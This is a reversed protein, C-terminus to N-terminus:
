STRSVEGAPASMVTLRSPRSGRPQYVPMTRSGPSIEAKGPPSTENGGTSPLELPTITKSRTIVSRPGIESGIVTVTSSPSATAISPPTSAFRSRARTSPTGPPVLRPSSPMPRLGAARMVSSMVSDFFCSPVACKASPSLAPPYPPTTSDGIWRSPISKSTEIAISPSSTTSSPLTRTHGDNRLGRGASLGGSDAFTEAREFAGAHARKRLGLWQDPRARAARGNPVLVSPRVEVEVRAEGGRRDAVAVGSDGGSEQLLRLRHRVARRGRRRLHAGVEVLAQDIQRRALELADHERHGARGRVLEGHLQRAGGGPASRDHAERARIDPPRHAGDPQGALPGVSALQGDVRVRLEEWVGVGVARGPCAAAGDGGDGGGERAAQAPSRSRASANTERRSSITSSGAEPTSSMAQMTTSGICPLPPTTIGGAPKRAPRRRTASRDPATNIKSSIWDPRPRLPRM